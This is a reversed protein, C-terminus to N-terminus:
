IKNGNIEIEKSKKIIKLVTLYTSDIIEGTEINMFFCGHQLHMWKHKYVSSPLFKYRGKHTHFEALNDALNEDWQDHFYSDYSTETKM